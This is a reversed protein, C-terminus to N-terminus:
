IISFTFTSRYTGSRSGGPITLEIQPQISYQGIRSRVDGSVLNMNDSTGDNDGDSFATLVLNSLTIGTSDDCDVETITNNVDSIIKLNSLDFTTGSSTDSFDTMTIGISFGLNEERFDDFAIVESFTHTNIVNSVNVVQTIFNETSPVSSIQLPGGGVCTQASALSTILFLNILSSIFLLIFPQTTKM